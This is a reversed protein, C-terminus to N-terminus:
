GSLVKQLTEKAGRFEEASGESYLLYTVLLMGAPVLLGWYPNDVSTGINFILVALFCLLFLGICGIGIVVGYMGRENLAMNVRVTTTGENEVFRGSMEAWLTSRKGIFARRASFGRSDVAGWLPTRPREWPGLDEPSSIAAQLRAIVEDKPHPVVIEFSETPFLDEPFFDV